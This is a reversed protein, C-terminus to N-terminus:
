NIKPLDNQMLGWRFKRQKGRLSNLKRELLNKKSSKAAGFLEAKTLEDVKQQLRTVEQVQEEPTLRWYGPDQFLRDLAFVNRQGVFKQYDNFEDTSLVRKIKNGQSDTYTIKRKVVPLYQNGQGSQQYLRELEEIVPHSKQKNNFTPNIMANYLLGLGENDYKRIKEGTVSAKDPLIGRLGPIKNVAKNIGQKFINPDYTEKATPDIVDAVQNAFTPVFQSPVDSIMGAAAAGLGQRQYNSMARNIGSLFPMDIISGLVAEGVQRASGGQGLKAGAAVVTSLPSFMNYAMGNIQFPRKGLQALNNRREMNQLTSLDEDNLDGTILGSKALAASGLMGGTGVIGRALDKTGQRQLGRSLSMGGKILGLPSYNIAQQTLNAPVQAFPMLLDGLGLTGPKVERGLHGLWNLGRRLGLISKSLVGDNQFVSERAEQEAIRIMEDTIKDKGSARMQNKLSEQFTAEYFARDPVQLSYNLAKELSQGIKSDFTRGPQLDYKDGIKRTNIGLRVDEAGEKLGKKFGRAWELWQPATRTRVGTKLSVLKDLGAAVYDTIGKDVGGYIGNATINRGITKANLLMAINRYAAIKKGLGAPIVDQIAKLAQAAAVEYERTGPVQRMVEKQLNVINKRQESSLVLPKKGPFKKNYDKILNDAHRLAGEPTLKNWLSLAQVSQGAKSGKESVKSILSLAADERGEALLRSVTQRADEFDAATPVYDKDAFKIDLADKVGNLDASIRQLSQLQLDPNNIVEYQAKYEPNSMIERKQAESLNPNSALSEDTLKSYKVKGSASSINDAYGGGAPIFSSDGATYEVPSASFAEQQFQPNEKAQIGPRREERYISSVIRKDEEPRLAVVLANEDGPNKVKYIEKGGPTLLEPENKRIIKPLRQADKRTVKHAYIAKNLGFNRETGTERQLRRGKAIINGNEDVIAAGRNLVVPTKDRPKMRVLEDSAEGILPDGSLTDYQKGIKHSEVATRIGDEVAEAGNRVGRLVGKAAMPALGGALGGGVGAAIKGLTSQPDFYGEAMGAGTGAAAATAPNDMLLARAGKSLLGEGKGLWGAAGAGTGLAGAVAGGYAYDAGKEVMKEWTNRAKLAQPKEINVGPLYNVMDIAANSIGQAALVGSRLLPNRVEGEYEDYTSGHKQHYLEDNRRGNSKAIEAMKDASFPAPQKNESLKSAIMGKIQEPPMDDPFSVNVGDPMKIIPM